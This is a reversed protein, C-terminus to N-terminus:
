PGRQSPSTGFPNSSELFSPAEVNKVSQNRAADQVPRAQLRENQRRVHRIEARANRIPRAARRRKQVTRVPTPADEVVPAPADQVPEARARADQEAVWVQFEKFLAESSPESNETQTQRAPEPAIIEPTPADKATAPLAEAEPASQVVSSQVIPPPQDTVPQPDSTDVRSATIDAFLTVPNGVWAAVGIAIVTAALISAKLGRLSIVAWNSGIGQQPDDASLFLPLTEPSDRICM